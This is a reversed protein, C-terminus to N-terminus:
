FSCIRGFCMKNELGLRKMLVQAEYTCLHMVGTLKATDIFQIVFPKRKTGSFGLNCAQLLSYDSVSRLPREISLVPTCECKPYM